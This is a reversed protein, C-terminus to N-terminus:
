WRTQMKPLFVEVDTTEVKEVEVGGGGGNICKYM